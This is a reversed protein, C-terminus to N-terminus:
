QNFIISIFSGLIYVVIGWIALKILLWLIAFPNKPIFSKKRPKEKQIPESQPIEQANGRTEPEKIDEM